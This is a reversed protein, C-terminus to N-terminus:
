PLQYVHMTIRHSMLLRFLQGMLLIMQQISDTSNWFVFVFFYKQFNFTYVCYLVCVEKMLGRDKYHKCHWAIESAAATNLVLRYPGTGSKWM